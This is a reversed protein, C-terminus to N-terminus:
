STPFGAFLQKVDARTFRHILAIPVALFIAAGYLTPLLRVEFSGVILHNTVFLVIVVALSCLVLKRVWARRLFLLAGSAIYICSAVASVVLLYLVVSKELGSMEAVQQIYIDLSERSSSHDAGDSGGLLVDIVVTPAVLMALNLTGFFILACGYLRVAVSPEKLRMKLARM